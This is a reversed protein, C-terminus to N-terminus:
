EFTVERSRYECYFLSRDCVELVFFLREPLEDFLWSINVDRSPANQEPRACEMRLDPKYQCYQYSFNGCDEGPGCWNSSLSIASRTDPRDNLFLEARYRVRPNVEWFLEFEGDDIYPSIVLPTNRDFESNTLYSDIIHFSKLEPPDDYHDSTVEARCAGLVIAAFILGLAKLQKM